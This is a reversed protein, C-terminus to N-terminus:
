GPHHCYHARGLDCHLSTRPVSRCPRRNAQTIFLYRKKSDTHFHKYPKKLWSGRLIYVTATMNRFKEYLAIETKEADVITQAKKNNIYRVLPDILLQYDTM